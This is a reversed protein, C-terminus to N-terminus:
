MVILGISSMKVRKLAPYATVFFIRRGCFCYHYHSFRDICKGRKRGRPKGMSLSILQYYVFVLYTDAFDECRRRIMRGVGAVLPTVALKM